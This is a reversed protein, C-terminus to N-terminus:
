LSLPLCTRSQFYNRDVKDSHTRPIRNRPLFISPVMFNSVIQRLKSKAAAVKSIFDPLPTAILQSGISDTQHSAQDDTGSSNLLQPINGGAPVVVEAVDELAGLFCQRIYAEVEGLELRQSRVKVQRDKWEFISLTGDANVRVLDRTKYLRTSSHKRLTCLWAPPQIFVGALGYGNTLRLHQAWYYVGNELVCEGALPRSTSTSLDEHWFLRAVSPVLMEHNARLASAAEGLNDKRQNDSVVCICSGVMLVSLQELVGIDFAYSSFQLVRSQSTLNYARIHDFAGSCYFRHKIVVSKPM